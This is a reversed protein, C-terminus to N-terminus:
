PLMMTQLRAKVAPWESDLISFYVTHRIRGSATIMHNRFTGEERAGIRLIAARSKENLSDTKLEVRICGLTEFAHRLLLYKAETNVSTRQWEPAVWTWGIEVRHHTRDINGYRTCGTARGSSKEVLAFPLSVGRTQEDLATAIYASMEEPTRVPTPIWRWLQEDLGVASLGAHHVQSLPELRVHRGELTVPVVNMENSM